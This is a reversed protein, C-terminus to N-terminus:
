GRKKSEKSANQGMANVTPDRLIQSLLADRINQPLSLLSDYIEDLSVKRGSNTIFEKKGSIATELAKEFIGKLENKMPFNQQESNPDFFGEPVDLAKCLEPIRSKSPLDKGTCWRSVTSQKVSLAASLDSQSMDANKLAARLKKSFYTRYFDM